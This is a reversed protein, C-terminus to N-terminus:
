SLKISPATHNRKSQATTKEANKRMIVLAYRQLEDTFREVRELGTKKGIDEVEDLDYKKSLFLTTDGCLAKVFSDEYVWRIKKPLQFGVSEVRRRIDEAMANYFVDDYRSVVLEPNKKLALQIGLLLFDDEKMCGGLINFIELQNIYNGVTNGLVVLTNRKLRSNSFDLKGWAAEDFFMNLGKFMIGGQMGLIFKRLGALYLELYYRQADIACIEHYRKANYELRHMWTETDGNGIGFFVKMTGETYRKITADYNRLFMETEAYSAETGSIPATINLYLQPDIYYQESGTVRKEKIQKILRKDYGRTTIVGEILPEKPNMDNIDVLKTM